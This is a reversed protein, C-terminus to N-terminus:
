GGPGGPPPAPLRSLMRRGKMAREIFQHTFLRVEMGNRRLEMAYIEAPNYTDLAEIGALAFEEDIYVALPVTRGRTHVCGPLGALSLQLSTSFIGAAPNAGAGVPPCMVVQAQFAVLQRATPFATMPLDERMFLRSRYASANRRARFVDHITEITVVVEEMEIAQPTLAIELHTRERISRSESFPRYGLGAITVIFDGAPLERLVFRGQADTMTSRSLDPVAVTLGTLPARTESDHM